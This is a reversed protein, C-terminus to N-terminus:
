PTQQVDPSKLTANTTQQSTFIIVRVNQANFREASSLILIVIQWSKFASGLILYIVLNVNLANSREM